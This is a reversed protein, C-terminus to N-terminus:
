NISDPASRRNGLSQGRSIKPLSDRTLETCHPWARIGASPSTRSSANPPRDQRQHDISAVRASSAEVNHFLALTAHASATAVLQDRFIAIVRLGQTRRIVRAKRLRIPRSATGRTESSPVAALYNRVKRNIPQDGTRRGM